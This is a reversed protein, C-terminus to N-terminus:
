LHRYLPLYYLILLVQYDNYAGSISVVVVDSLVPSSVFRGTNTTKAKYGERWESNVRSFYHGLSPQMAVPPSRFLICTDRWVDLCFIFICYSYPFVSSPPVSYQHPSSLTLITQVASKRLHPHVVAARAVFGGMSHGVLIVSKPLSGSNAAGERTRADYSVKYQDLIQLLLKMKLISRLSSNLFWQRLCIYFWSLWILVFKLSLVVHPFFTTCPVLRILGVTFLKFTSFFTTWRLLM